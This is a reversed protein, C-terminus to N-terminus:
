AARRRRAFFANSAPLFLCVLAALGLLAPVTDRLLEYASAGAFVEPGDMAVTALDLLAVLAAAGVLLLRAWGRGQRVMVALLVGLGIVLLTFAGSVAAQRFAGVDGSAARMDALGTPAIVFMDLVWTVADLAIVALLLLFAAEVARPRGTSEATTSAM